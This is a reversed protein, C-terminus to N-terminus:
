FGLLLDLPHYEKFFRYVAGGEFELSVLAQSGLVAGVLMSVLWAVIFAFAVSFLVGLTRNLWSLPKTHFIGNVIWLVISFLINCVLLLLVFSVVIAIVSVLPQTFTEALREVM